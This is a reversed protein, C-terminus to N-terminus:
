HIYSPYEVSREDIIQTESQICVPDLNIGFKGFLSCEKPPLKLLKCKLGGPSLAEM